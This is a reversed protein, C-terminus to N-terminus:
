GTIAASLSSGYLSKIAAGTDSSLPARKCKAVESLPSSSKVFAFSSQLDVQQEQRLAQSPRRESSEDLALLDQCICHPPLCDARHTMTLKAFIKEGQGEVVAVAVAAVVRSLHVPKACVAAILPLKRASQLRVKFVQSCSALKSM